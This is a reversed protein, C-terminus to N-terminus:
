AGAVPALVPSVHRKVLFAIRLIPFVNRCANFFNSAITALAAALAAQMLALTALLAVTLRRFPGLALNYQGDGVQIVRVTGTSAFWKASVLFVKAGQTRTAVQSQIRNSM